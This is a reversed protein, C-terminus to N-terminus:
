LGGRLFWGCLGGIVLAVAVAIGMDRSTSSVWGHLEKEFASM